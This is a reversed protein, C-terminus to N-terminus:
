ESESCPSGGPPCVVLRPAGELSLADRIELIASRLVPTDAEAHFHLSEGPGDLFHREFVLLRAGVLREPGAGLLANVGGGASLALRQKTSPSPRSPAYDESVVEIEVVNGERTSGETVTRITASSIRDSARVLEYLRSGPRTDLLQEAPVGLVSPAIADDFLMRAGDDYPATAPPHPSQPAPPGSGCAFSALALGLGLLVM